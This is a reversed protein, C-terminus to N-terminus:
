RKPCKDPNAECAARLTERHHILSRQPLMRALTTLVEGYDEFRQVKGRKNAANRYAGAFLDAAQFPKWMEGTEPNLKPLQIILKNHRKALRKFDRQGCDGEEFVHLIFHKPYKKKM